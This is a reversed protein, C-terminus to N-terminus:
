LVLTNYKDKSHTELKTYDNETMLNLETMALSGPMKKEKLNKTRARAASSKTALWTAKNDGARRGDPM